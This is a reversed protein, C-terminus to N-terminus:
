TDGKHQAQCLWPTPDRATVAAGTMAKIVQTLADKLMQSGFLSGSMSCDQLLTKDTVEVESGSDSIVCATLFLHSVLRQQMIQEIDPLKNPECISFSAKVRRHSVHLWSAVVEAAETTM